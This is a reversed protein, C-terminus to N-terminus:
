IGEIREIQCLYIYLSVYTTCPEISIEHLSIKTSFSYKCQKKCMVCRILVYNALIFVRIKLAFHCNFKFAQFIYFLGLYIHTDKECIKM